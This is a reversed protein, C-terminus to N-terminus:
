KCHQKLANTIRLTERGSFPGAVTKGNRDILYTTPFGNGPTLSLHRQLTPLSGKGRQSGKVAFTSKRTDELNLQAMWPDMTGTTNIVTFKSCNSGSLLDTKLPHLDKSLQYCYTCTSSSFKVLALKASGFAAHLSSPEKDARVLDLNKFSLTESSTVAPTEGGAVTKFGIKRTFAGNKGAQDSTGYLLYNQDVAIKVPIKFSFFRRSQNKAAVEAKVRTNVVCKDQADPVCMFAAVATLPMAMIMFQKSKDNTDAAGLLVKLEKSNDVASLESQGIEPQQVNCNTIFGIVALLMLFAKISFKM